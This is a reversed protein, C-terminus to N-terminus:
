NVVLVHVGWAPRAVYLGDRTLEDGARSYVAGDLLDTLNVNRGSLDTWPLRVRAQADRDADNVVVVCRRDGDTWTWAALQEASTNDPWGECSTMAWQGHRVDIGVL